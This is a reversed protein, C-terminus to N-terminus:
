VYQDALQRAVSFRGAGHRTYLGNLNEAVSHLLWNRATKISRSDSSWADVVIMKDVTSEGEPMFTVIFNYHTM